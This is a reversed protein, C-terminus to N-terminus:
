FVSGCTRGIRTATSRLQKTSGRRGVRELGGEVGGVTWVGALVARKIRKEVCRPISAASCWTSSECRRRDCTAQARPLAAVPRGAAKALLQDVGKITALDAEVVEATVGHPEFACAAHAIAPEDAAVM